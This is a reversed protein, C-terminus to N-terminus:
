KKWKGIIKKVVDNGNEASEKVINQAKQNKKGIYKLKSLIFLAASKKINQNLVTKQVLPFYSELNDKYKQYCIIAAYSRIVEGKTQDDRLDQLFLRVKDQYDKNRFANTGNYYYALENNEDMYDFLEKFLNFGNEENGIRIFLHAALGRINIDDDTEAIKKYGAALENKYSSNSILDLMIKKSQWTLEKEVQDFVKRVDDATAIGVLNNMADYKYDILIDSESPDIDQPQLKLLNFIKEKREEVRSADKFNILDHYDELTKRHSNQQSSTAADAANTKNPSFVTILLFAIIFAMILNSNKM